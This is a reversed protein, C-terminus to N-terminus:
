MYTSETFLGENENFEWQQKCAYKIREGIIGPFECFRRNKELNLFIQILFMRGIHQKLAPSFLFSYYSSQCMKLSKVTSIYHM